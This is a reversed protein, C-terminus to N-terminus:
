ATQSIFRVIPPRIAGPATGTIQNFAISSPMGATTASYFGMGLKPQNTANGAVGYEGSFSSNMQSVLAHSVSANNGGNTTRSVIGLWYDNAQVTNTWGISFNRIGAFTSNNVTGSHTLALSGSGSSALSLTAGSRTYLGMWASVTVSGTSNSSNSVLMPMYVRDFQFNPAQVQQIHLSAQGAQGMVQLIDPNPDFRSYTIEAPVGMSITSGNSWISLAGTASISSTQPVSLNFSQGTTSAITLAGSAVMHATGSTYTTQSNALAIGGGGAAGASITITHGGTGTSQSLTINNGGAFVVRNTAMGATGATNGITSMGASFAPAGISITNGNSSLSVIGTAALSSQNPVSFNYSQGTTSAITLAGSAVMHATGSTYTTQSNALAIGGGGTAGGIISVANGNQSLTINNGGALTLTGSSIHAMAGATNGSLTVNHLNQTQVTQNAASITITASSANINQSLTVNNGGAFVIGRNVTGTVGSTNGITSAGFKPPIYTM